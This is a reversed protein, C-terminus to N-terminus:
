ISHHSTEPTVKGRFIYYVFITYILIVPMLILVGLISFLQSEHSAAADYVSIDPPVILPLTSFALGIFSVIFLGVTGLFPWLARKRRLASYVSFALLGTITPVPWLFYFNPLSFWKDAIRPFVLPTWLSVLAIFLLMGMLLWVAIARMKQQLEGETKLNLWCAGLMAYGVAVGGGCFLSFPTLWDFPKGAFRDDAVEIGQLLAGLIVGQALAAGLSGLLFAKDWWHHHPKAVHRFEFAVGRFILALLMFIVPIYLAPMIISYALPFAVFLGGGGLVLWTENGDWFPAISSMMLDRNAESKELGFLMGVGLDFGDLITYVVVAFALVLGWILPLTDIM